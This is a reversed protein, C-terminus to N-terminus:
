GFFSRRDSSIRVAYLGPAIWFNGGDRVGEDQSDVFQREEDRRIGNGHEAQCLWCNLRLGGAQRM